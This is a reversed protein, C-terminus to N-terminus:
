LIANDNANYKHQLKSSYIVMFLGISIGIAGLDSWSAGYICHEANDNNGSRSCQTVFGTQIVIEACIVSVLPQMAAYALNLSPDAWRNVWTMLLYAAVSQALIWYSLAYLSDRPTVWPDGHCDPCVADLLYSSKAVIIATLVMLITCVMYSYGTITASPYKLHAKKSSILYFVTASCSIFFM